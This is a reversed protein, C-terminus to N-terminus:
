LSQPLFTPPGGAQEWHAVHEWPGNFIALHRHWRQKATSCMGGEVARDDILCSAAAPLWCFSSHGGGNPPMPPDRPMAWPPPYPLGGWAPSLCPSHPEHAASPPPIRPVGRMGPQSLLACLMGRRDQARPGQAPAARLLTQLIEM